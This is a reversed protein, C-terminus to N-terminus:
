VLLKKKIMKFPTVLNIKQSSESYQEKEMLEM